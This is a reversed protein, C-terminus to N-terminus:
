RDAILREGTVTLAPQRSDDNQHFGSDMKWRNLIPEQTRWFSSM